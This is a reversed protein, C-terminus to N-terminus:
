TIRKFGLRLKVSALVILEIIIVGVGLANVAWKFAAFSSYVYALWNPFGTPDALMIFSTLNELADSTALIPLVVALALAFRRWFSGPQHARATAVHLFFYTLMLGVIFVFDLLQTRVFIDLTGQEILTVYHEKIQPGSFALQAEFLSVPYRAAEFSASVLVNGAVALTLSIPVLFRLWHGPPWSELGTPRESPTKTKQTTM